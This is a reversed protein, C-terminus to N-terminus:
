SLGGREHTGDGIETLLTLINRKQLDTIPATGMRRHTTVQDDMGMNRALEQFYRTVSAKGVLIIATERRQTERVLSLLNPRGQLCAFYSGSLVVIVVNFQVDRLTGDLHRVVNATILPLRSSGEKLYCEYYYILQRSPILGYGASIFHLSLDGIQRIQDIFPRLFTAYTGRYMDEAAAVLPPDPQSPFMGEVDCGPIDAFGYKAKMQNRIEERTLHENPWKKDTCSTLFLFRPM